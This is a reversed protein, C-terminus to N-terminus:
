KPIFSPLGLMQQELKSLRLCGKFRKSTQKATRKRHCKTCLVQLNFPISRGGESWPIIHDTDCDDVDLNIKICRANACKFNQLRLFRLRYKRPVMRCEPNLAM